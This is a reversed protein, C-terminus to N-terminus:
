RRRGADNRIKIDRMRIARLRYQYLSLNGGRGPRRARAVAFAADNAGQNCISCDGRHIDVAQITRVTYDDNWSQDTVRFAFSAGDILGASIRRVVAQADPDDRDLQASFHLGKHDEALALHGVQGPPV